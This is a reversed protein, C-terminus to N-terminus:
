RPTTNERWRFKALKNECTHYEREEQLLDLNMRLNDQTQQINFGEVRPSSMSIEM